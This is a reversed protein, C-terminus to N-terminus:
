FRTEALRQNVLQDYPLAVLNVQVEIQAWNEQIVEAVRTHLETDPHLLDFSLRLDEKQRVSGGEAPIVYGAEKLMTRALELDYSRPELGEFYAWSGPFFPAQQCRFAQGQLFAISL